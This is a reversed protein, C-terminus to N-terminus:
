LISISISLQLHLSVLSWTCARAGSKVCVCVCCPFAYEGCKASTCTCTCTCTSTRVGHLEHEYTGPEMADAQIWEVSAAWGGAIAAAPPEGRRSLSKVAFGNRVAAKANHRYVQLHTPQDHSM